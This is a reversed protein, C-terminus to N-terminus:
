TEKAKRGADVTLSILIPIWSAMIALVIVGIVLCLLFLTWGLKCLNNRLRRGADKGSTQEEGLFGSNILIPTCNRYKGSASGQEVIIRGLDRFLENIEIIGQEIYKIDRERGELLREDLDIVRQSDYEAHRHSHRRRQTECEAREDAIADRCYKVYDVQKEVALRQAHQFDTIARQFEGTLKQQEYKESPGIDDWRALKKIDPVLLKSIERTKSFADMLSSRLKETDHITRHLGILRHILSVNATVTAINETISTTLELFESSSTTFSGTEIDNLDDYSM